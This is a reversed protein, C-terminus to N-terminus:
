PGSAPVAEDSSGVEVSHLRPGQVGVARAPHVRRVASPESVAVGDEPGETRPPREEVASAEESGELGLGAVGVLVVEGVVRGIRIRATEDAVGGPADAVGQRAIQEQAREDLNRYDPVQVANLTLMRHDVHVESVIKSHSGRTRDRPM